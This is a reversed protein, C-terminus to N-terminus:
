KTDYSICERRVGGVVRVTTFYEHTDGEQRRKQSQRESRQSPKLSQKDRSAQRDSKTQGINSNDPPEFTSM